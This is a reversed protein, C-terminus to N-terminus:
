TRNVNLRDLILNAEWDSKNVPESSNKKQNKNQMSVKESSTKLETMLTLRSKEGSSDTTQKLLKLENLWDLGLLNM